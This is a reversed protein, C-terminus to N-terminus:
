PRVGMGQLISAQMGQSAFWRGLLGAAARAEDVDDTTLATKSNLRVPKVGPVLGGDHVALLQHRMGFILAERTIPRLRNVRDPLQALSPNNEAIWGAFATNARKPLADRTPKHLTLPLVLFVTVISLSAERNRFYEYVTRDILESCFAPNFISAEESPREAWSLTWRSEAGMSVKAEM